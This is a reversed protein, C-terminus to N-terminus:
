EIRDRVDAHIRRRILFEEDDRWRRGGLEGLSEDSALAMVVAETIILHLRSFYPATVFHHVFQTSHIRSFLAEIRSLGQEPPSAGLASIYSQMVRALDLPALVPKVAFLDREAMIIVDEALSENGFTYWNGALILVTQLADALEHSKLGQLRIRWEASSQGKFIEVQLQSMLRAIADPQDLKRLSRLCTAGLANILPYRQQDKKTRVLELLREIFSSVFDRRDYHAAVFLARELLQGQRKSGHALDNAAAIADPVQRLLEVAFVEDVRGSLPLATHLIDFRSEPTVSRNGIGRVLLQRVQRVLEEPRSIKTLKWLAEKFPDGNITWVAIADNREQPALISSFELYRLLSHDSYDLTNTSTGNAIGASALNAMKETAADSQLADMAQRIALPVPGTHPKGEKARDIRYQFMEVIIPVSRIRFHNTPEGALRLATLSKQVIEGAIESEQLRAYAFAFSMDVFVPTHVQEITFHPKATELGEQVWGRVTAHLSKAKERIVRMRETNNAGAYRLFVPLDREPNLGGEYLRALLRDRTRALGLSDAGTERALKMAVLWAGRVPLLTDNQALFQQVAPWQAKMEPRGALAFVSAAVARLSEKTPETSLWQDLTARDFPVAQEATIWKAAIADAERPNAAMANWFALAADERTGLAVYSEALDSWLAARTPADIPGTGDGLFAAELKTRRLEWESPTRVAETVSGSIPVEFSVSKGPSPPPQPEPNKPIRTEDVPKKAPRGGGKGGGSKPPAEVCIFSDFDFTTAAIWEAIPEANADIIYNVWDELPRFADFPVSYPTFGGKGDPALWTARDRDDALMRRVTERRLPPHLRQGAPVFLNPLNWFPKYGVTNPIALAPPAQKSPTVSLAYRKVGDPSEAVAFRLRRLLREDADRVFADLAAFESEPLVWFEPVDTATGAALRLPVTITEGPGADAWAVPAHPLPFQLLEYIDRFPADPVADWSRPASLFLVRNEALTIRSAFPHTYGIEVWVRPSPEVYARIPQDNGEFRETARLLTYYPPGIVRLLIRTEGKAGAVARFSQRDNGLRLIEQVIEAMVAADPLEFLIPAQQSVQPPGAVPQLPFAQLWCTLEEIPGLHHDSETVGLALLEAKRGKALKFSAEVAIAGNVGFSARCPASVTAAPIHGGAIALSLTDLRPFHFIM